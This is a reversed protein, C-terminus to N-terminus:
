KRLREDYTLKQRAIDAATLPTPAVAESGRTAPRGDENEVITFEGPNPPRTFAAARPLANYVTPTLVLGLYGLQGGGLTTPVRQANRKVQKLLKCINDINPRGHIKDLTKYEFYQKNYDPLTHLNSM